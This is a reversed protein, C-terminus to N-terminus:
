NYAANPKDDPKNAYEDKFLGDLKDNGIGLVGYMLSFLLVLIVYFTLFIRLDYFVRFLMTVIPSLSRFIRLFNFTRRIALIVVISMLLKSYWAYPTDIMHILSMAVSGYIYVLDIYNGPDSFYEGFGNNVM